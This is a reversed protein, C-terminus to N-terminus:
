YKTFGGKKEVVSILRSSFSDYLRNVYDESIESLEKDLAASLDHINKYRKGGSYLRLAVLSWLNEIPSLDPSKAPWDLVEINHDQFWKKTFKSTHVSANDQQFIFDDGVKARAAPLMTTELINCYHVYDITSECRKYCLFCGPAIAGWIMISPGHQQLREPPEEDRRGDVWRFDWGDPGILNLKKEDSIVLKKTNVRQPGLHKVAFDFRAKKHKFSLKVQKPVRKYSLEPDSSIIQRVRRVSVDLELDKHVTTANAGPERATRRIMRVDQPSLKSSRPRRVKEIGDSWRKLYRLITSPHRKVRRAIQEASQNLEAWCEISIKENISLHKAM